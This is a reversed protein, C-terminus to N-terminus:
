HIPDGTRTLNIHYQYRSSPYRVESFEVPTGTDDSTVRHIVLIPEDLGAGLEQVDDYTSREASIKQSGHAIKVGHQEFFGYIHNHFQSQEKLEDFTVNRPVLLYSMERFIPVDSVSAIRCIKVVSTGEEVNLQIAIKESCGVKEISKVYVDVDNGALRLEEAFGQLRSVAQTNRGSKTVFTGVGQRRELYGMSVLDSLAQRVTIRSVGHEKALEAESPIREGPHWRNRQLDHILDSKLQHYLPVSTKM